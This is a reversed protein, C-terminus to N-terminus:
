ALYPRVSFVFRISEKTLCRFTKCAANRFILRHHSTDNRMEFAPALGGKNCPQDHRTMGQSRGRHAPSEKMLCHNKM